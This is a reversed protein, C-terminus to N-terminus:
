FKKKAEREFDETAKGDLMRQYIAYERDETRLAGPEYSTVVACKKFGQNQFIEYYQCAESISSAM